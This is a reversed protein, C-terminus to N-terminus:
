DVHIRTSYNKGGPPMSSSTYAYVISGEGLINEVVDMVRPNALLDVFSRAHTCCVLVMGYDVYDTGGHLQKETEIATELDSRLRRVEEPSLVDRVISYGDRHYEEVVEAISRAASM